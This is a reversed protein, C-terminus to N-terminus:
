NLEGRYIGLRQMENKVQNRKELIMMRIVGASTLGEIDALTELYNKIRSDLRINFTEVHRSKRVYDGLISDL